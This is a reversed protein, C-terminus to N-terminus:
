FLVNSLVRATLGIGILFYIGHVCAWIKHTDFWVWHIRLWTATANHKPVVVERPDVPNHRAIIGRYEEADLYTKIKKNKIFGIRYPRPNRTDSIYHLTRSIYKIDALRNGVLHHVDGSIILDATHRYAEALAFNVQSREFTKMVLIIGALGVIMLGGSLPLFSEDLEAGSRWRSGILALLATALGTFITTATSRQTERHLGHSNQETYMKILYDIVMRKQHDSTGESMAEAGDAGDEHAVDM